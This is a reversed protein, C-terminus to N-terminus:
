CFTLYELCAAFNYNLAHPEGGITRATFASMMVIRQRNTAQAPIIQFRSRRTAAAISEARIMYSARTLARPVARTSVLM